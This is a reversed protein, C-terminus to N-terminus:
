FSRMLPFNPIFHGQRDIFDELTTIPLDNQRAIKNRSKFQRYQYITFTKSGFRSIFVGGKEENLIYSYDTSKSNPWPWSWHRKAHKTNAMLSELNSLFDYECSAQLLAVPLNEVEVGWEISGQWELQDDRKIYFDAKAGV